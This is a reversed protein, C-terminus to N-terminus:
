RGAAGMLAGIASSLAAWAGHPEVVFAIANGVLVGALMCLPVFSPDADAAIPTPTPHPCTCDACECEALHWEDGSRLRPLPQHIM